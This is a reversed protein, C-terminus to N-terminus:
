LYYTTATMARSLSSMGKKIPWPFEVGGQELAKDGHEQEDVLMQELIQRSKIDDEPIQELHEHLHKCVQDETAEVFGLSVKDNIAGTIAGIGFSLGYFVPNLYSTHSGLDQLRKECWVLHDIEEEAADLLAERTDANRATLSQGQYLAQACVEGTHNIRMLGAIHKASAKDLELSEDTQPLERAAEFAGKTLTKLGNDIKCIFDDFKSLQRV